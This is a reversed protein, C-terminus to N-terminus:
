EDADFIPPGSRLRNGWRDSRLTEVWKKFDREEVVWEYIERDASRRAAEEFDTTLLDRIFRV